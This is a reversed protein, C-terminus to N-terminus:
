AADGDEGASVDIYLVDDSELFSVPLAIEGTDPLADTEAALRLHTGNWSVNLSPAKGILQEAITEFADYLAVIVRAPLLRDEESRATTQLGALSLYGASERLALFLEGTSLSENEAALLLLNTKRKVYANLVSAATITERFGDSGPEATDLLRGIRKQCPYLAEAIEHYIRHRSALYADKEKQETEARILDNEHEIMENAEALREQALHVASEDVVWFAYGARLEKGCLKRDRTLWVPAEAAARLDGTDTDLAAESRYAPCFERDTILTPIRLKRFFGSYNENCPILRYRICVEFVGLMGFIHIEPVNFIRLHSPLRDLVLINLLVLGFWLTVLSLLLRLAKKPLRGTERILIVLGPATALIMWVYLLYFVPGLSYTDTELMFQAPDIRPVYVLRHLDNTMVLLALVSAPILLLLGLRGGQARSGRRIEICAMLFLAPTLLQPIWYAYCAYRILVADTLFRYKIIRLLMYLLMLSAAALVCTRARSPLLRVRVAETWALLLGIYTLYNVCTMLTDLAPVGTRSFLNTIGALLLFGIFLLTNRKQSQM